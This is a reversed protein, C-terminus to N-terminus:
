NWSFENDRNESNEQKLINEQHQEALYLRAM